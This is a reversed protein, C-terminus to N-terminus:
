KILRLTLPYRFPVGENAKIAAIIMCVIQYLHLGILIPIGFIAFIVTFIMVLATLLYRM